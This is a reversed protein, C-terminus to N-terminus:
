ALVTWTGIKGKKVNLPISASETRRMIKLFAHSFLKFSTRTFFTRMYYLFMKIFQQERSQLM